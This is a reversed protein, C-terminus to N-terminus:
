AMKKKIATTGYVGHELMCVLGKLVCFGSDMLVYKRTIFMPNTMRMMLGGTAGYYAEFDPNEIEIQRDKGEVLEFFIGGSVHCLMHHALREWFSPAEQPFSGM